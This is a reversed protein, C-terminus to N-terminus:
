SKSELRSLWAEINSLDERTLIRRGFRVLNYAETIKMAEPMALAGAFEVPTQYPPRVLGKEKLACTMRSYFEIIKSEENRRFWEGLRRRWGSRRLYRIFNIILFIVIIAAILVILITVGANVQKSYGERGSLENWSKNAESLTSGIWDSLRMLYTQTQQRFTRVLSRQEQNDYAVVYQIWLTDLAEMYSGFVGFIGASTGPDSGSGAPTPDFPVWVDEGPFYVEVWSHADKQRVIYMGATENYQGAQFGNVVRTAMGHTRLMIAMASAFYECHGERVNFLFDALPDNPNDRGAKLDLTYGFNTQLYGEVAKAADYRNKAGAKDIVEQTLKAFREDMRPPLQFYINKEQPYAANDQRLQNERPLYTDSIVKYSIREPETRGATIAENHDSSISEFNGKIGMMRPLGFLTPTDLPELYITQLITRNNGSETALKYLNDESPGFTKIQGRSRRWIKKDFIDLAVGRWKFNAFNPPAGGDIKVRMVIESNQQIQAIAGLTVMDSFGTSTSLGRTGAGLGASGVRPLFFFLPVALVLTFLLLNVAVLPLRYNAGPLALINKQQSKQQPNETSKEPPKEAPKKLAPDLIKARKENINRFSKRVEFAIVTTVALFLYVVFSAALFPSISFGAALLIEFFSILYLVFWDRDNKVQLLKIAALALILRALTAVAAQERLYGGTIKYKWDLYFLPLLAFIFILGMRESIQWKTDELFWAAAAAVAFLFTVGAGVGGSVVLALLGAFLLAYSSLKFFSEFKM